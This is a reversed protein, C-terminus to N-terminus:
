HLLHQLLSLRLVPKSQRRAVLRLLATSGLGLVVALCLVMLLDLLVDQTLM